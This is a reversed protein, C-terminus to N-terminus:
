EVQTKLMKLIARYLPRQSEFSVYTFLDKAAVWKGEILEEKQLRYSPTVEALYLQVRKAIREGARTKYHYRDVLYPHPLYRIVKMATEEQLEREAAQKPSEGTEARGKPFGWHLGNLHRVLFLDWIQGRFTLPIIGFSQEQM